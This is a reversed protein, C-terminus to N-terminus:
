QFYECIRTVLKDAIEIKPMRKWKESGSRDFLIINNYDGNFVAQNESVNNALLWDVDNKLLKKKANEYINETEAAFGVLTGKFGMIDRASGLSDRICM